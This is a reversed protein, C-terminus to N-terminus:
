CRYVSLREPLSRDSAYTMLFTTPLDQRRLNQRHWIDNQDIVIESTLSVSVREIAITPAPIAARLDRISEHEDMPSHSCSDSHKVLLECPMVWHWHWDLFTDTIIDAAAHEEVLHSALDMSPLQDAIFTGHAHCVPIPGQWALLILLMAWARSNLCPQIVKTNSFMVKDPPLSDKPGLTRSVGYIM